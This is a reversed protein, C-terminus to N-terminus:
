TEVRPTQGILAQTASALLLTSHCGMVCSLIACTAYLWGTTPVLYPSSPM